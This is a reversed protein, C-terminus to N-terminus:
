ILIFFCTIHSVHLKNRVRERESEEEEEEASLGAKNGAVSLASAELSSVVALSALELSWCTRPLNIPSVAMNLFGRVNCTCGHANCAGIFNVLMFHLHYYNKNTAESLRSNFTSVYCDVFPMHLYQHTIYLGTVSM